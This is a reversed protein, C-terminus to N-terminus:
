LSVHVDHHGRTGSFRIRPSGLKGPTMMGAEAYSGQYDLYSGCDVYHVKRELVGSRTPMFVTRTGSVLQHNHGGLYVDMGQVIDQLKVVRNIASGLSGGGGTTHHAFVHYFEPNKEPGVRLRMVAALGCYPIDLESCFSQLPSFGFMDVVRREHNGDIAGLVQKRVPAFLEVARRYESSDSEFPSTKSVRSAANFVDGMLFIRATPHELVWAIYGQLKKLGRRGFAKDGIHIDGIPVLYAADAEITVPLFQV